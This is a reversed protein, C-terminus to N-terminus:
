STVGYADVITQTVDNGAADSAQAKISVYGDTASVSPVTYIATYSGDRGQLVRASQWTTGGDTSTWVKLSTVAPHDEAQYYATVQLQHAGPATVSNTLNTFANYRLFILPDAQCPATSVRLYTGWCEHGPPTQDTAPEASTFDWTTHTNINTNGDDDADTTSSGETLQYREQQPPLTYATRDKVPTQQIEQANQYLQVESPDGEGVLAQTVTGPPDAADQKLTEPYFTNGQRCGACIPKQSALGIDTQLADAPIARAAGPALPQQLWNETASAPQDFVSWGNGFNGLSETSTGASNYAQASGTTVWVLDPRLPGYYETRTVPGGFYDSPAFLWHDDPQFAYTLQVIQAPQASSHYTTQRAALQSNTVAYHLSAPIGGQQYFALQYAYPSPGSDAVTIQVPGQSLMGRLATAQAAPVSVFPISPPTPNTSTSEYSVPLPCDQGKLGDAQTVGPDFIIGAAGANVADELQWYPITHGVNNPCGILAQGPVGATVAHMLVLKGRVNQGAFDQPQGFGVDVLPLTARGSFHVAGSVPEWSINFPTPYWPDLALRQHAAAAMTVQPEELTYYTSFHYIGMTVQPSPMAWYNNQGFQSGYFSDAYAQTFDGDPTSRYEALFANMVLTPRPTSITVPQAQNLNVTLSTDGTVTLQPVTLDAFQWQDSLMFNAGAASSSYVGAPVTYTLQLATCTGSSDTAACSESSAPYSSGEGPGAVGFLAPNTGFPEDFSLTATAGAPGFPQSGDRGIVTETVTYAPLGDDSAASAPQPASDGALWARAVGDALQPTAAPRPATVAATGTLARWFAAADKLGVHYEAAHSIGDPATTRSAGPLAKARALAAASGYQIILPLSGTGSTTELRALRSISFLNKDLRGSTILDAAGGPEAYATTTRHPGGQVTVMLGGARTSANSTQQSNAVAYRGAGAATLTLQDGNILTVTDSTGRLGPLSLATSGSGAQTKAAAAPTAATARGAVSAAAPAALGTVVLVLPALAAAVTRRRRPAPWSKTLRNRPGPRNV